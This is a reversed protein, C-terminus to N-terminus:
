EPALLQTLEAAIRFKDAVGCTGLWTLPMETEDARILYVTTVEDEGSGSTEARAGVFDALGISEPRRAFSRLLDMRRATRDVVLARGRLLSVIGLGLGVCIALALWGPWTASDDLDLAERKPDRLYGNVADTWAIKKDENVATGGSYGDLVDTRGDHVLAIGTLTGGEDGATKALTAREISAIAITRRSSVIGPGRVVTVTCTGASRRCSLEAGGGALFGFCGAFLTMAFLFLIPPWARPLPIRIPPEVNRSSTRYAM